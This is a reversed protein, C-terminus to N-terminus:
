LIPIVAAISVVCQGNSQICPQLLISKTIVTESNEFFTKVSIREKNALDDELDSLPKIKNIKLLDKNEKSRLLDINAFKENKEITFYQTGIDMEYKAFGYKLIFFCWFLSDKKSVPKYISNLNDKSYKIDKVDKSDKSYKNDKYDQNHEPKEINKKYIKENYNNNLCKYIDKNYRALNESTFMYDQLEEVVNYKNSTNYKINPSALIQSM